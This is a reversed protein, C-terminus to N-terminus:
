APEEPTTAAESAAPPTDGEGQAATADLVAKRAMIAKLLTTGGVEVDLHAARRRWLARSEEVTMTEVAIIDAAIGAIDDDSLTPRDRESGRGVKEMEERSARKGKTAYGANALARGIASTECNELASTANVGKSSTVEEAYGTALPWNDDAHAFVAAKVVYQNERHEVLDTWVRGTPHDDWFKALREEVPEYDDLNFGM